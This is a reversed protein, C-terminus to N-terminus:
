ISVAASQLRVPKKRDCSWRAAGRAPGSSGAHRAPPGPRHYFWLLGTVGRRCYWAGQGAPTYEERALAPVPCPDPGSKAPRSVYPVVTHSGDLSGGDGTSSPELSEWVM